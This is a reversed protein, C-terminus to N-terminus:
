RIPRLRITTRQAVENVGTKEFEIRRGIADLFRLGGGLLVPMIDIRLEDVLDAQLLQGIIDPGGICQVSRTGAAAKAQAVAPQLGDGVFTFSLQDNEKPHKLPPRHTLVFIPRQFEYEDAYTDPDPAMDFAGRGMLVSGTEALMEDMYSTGRLVALDPYLAAASGDVDAAFGDLSVTLGAILRDHGSRGAGGYPGTM